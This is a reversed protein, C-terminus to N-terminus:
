LVEEFYRALAQDLASGVGECRWALQLRAERGLRQLVAALGRAELVARAVQENPQAGVPLVGREDGISELANLLQTLHEAVAAPHSRSASTRPRCLSPSRGGLARGSIAAQRAVIRREAALRAAERTRGLRHELANGPAALQGGGVAQDVEVLRDGDSM